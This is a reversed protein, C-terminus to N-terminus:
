DEGQYFLTSARFNLFQDALGILFLATPFVLFLILALIIHLWMRKPFRSSLTFLLMSAGLVEYMTSFAAYMMTGVLGFIADSTLGFILAGIALVAAYGRLPKTLRLMRIDPSPAPPLQRRGWANATLMVSGLGVLMCLTVLLSPLFSRMTETLRLHLMKMLELRLGADMVAYDGLQFISTGVYQRPMEMFGSRLLSALMANGYPSQDIQRLVLDGVGTFVNGGAVTALCLVALASGAAMAGALCLALGSVGLKHRRAMLCAPLSFASFSFACLAALPLSTRLLLAVSPLAALLLAYPLGAAVAMPCCVLPMLAGIPLATVPWLLTCGAILTALGARRWWPHIQTFRVIM